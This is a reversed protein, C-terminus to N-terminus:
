LISYNLIYEYNMSEKEKKPVSEQAETPGLQINRPSHWEGIWYTTIVLFLTLQCVRNISLETVTKVTLVWFILGFKLICVVKKNTLNPDTKQMSVSCFLSKYTLYKKLVFIHWKKYIRTKGVSGIYKELKKQM